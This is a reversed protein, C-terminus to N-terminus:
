SFSWHTYALYADRFFLCCFFMQLLKKRREHWSTDLQRDVQRSPALKSFCPGRKSRDNAASEIQINFVYQRAGNLHCCCERCWTSYSFLLFGSFNKLMERFNRWPKRRLLRFIKRNYSDPQRKMNLLCDIQFIKLHGARNYYFVYTDHDFALKKFYGSQNFSLFMHMHALAEGCVCVCLCVCQLATHATRAPRAQLWHSNRLGDRVHLKTHRSTHTHTHTHTGRFIWLVFPIWGPGQMHRDTCIRVDHTYALHAIGALGCVCVCEWMWVCVCVCVCVCVSDCECVCVCACVCVCVCVCGCVSLCLTRTGFTAGHGSMNPNQAWLNREKRGGRRHERVGSCSSFSILNKGPKKRVM